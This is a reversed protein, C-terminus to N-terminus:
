DQLLPNRNSHHRPNRFTSREYIERSNTGYHFGREFGCHCIELPQNQENLHTKCKRINIYYTKGYMQCKKKKKKTLNCEPHAHFQQM